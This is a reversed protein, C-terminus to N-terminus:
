REILKSEVKQVRNQNEASNSTLQRTSLRHALQFNQM